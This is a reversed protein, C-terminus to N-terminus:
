GNNVYNICTKNTCSWPFEGCKICRLSSESLPAFALEMQEFYECEEIGTTILGNGLPVQLTKRLSENKCLQHFVTITKEGDFSFGVASQRYKCNTCKM